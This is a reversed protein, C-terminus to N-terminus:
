SLRLPGDSFPVTFHSIIVPAFAGRCCVAEAAAANFNMEGGGWVCKSKHQLTIWLIRVTALYRSGFLSRACRGAVAFWVLQQLLDFTVATWHNTVQEGCPETSTVQEGCPVTKTVQEGCTKMKALFREGLWLVLM